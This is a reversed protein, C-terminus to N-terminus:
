EFQELPIAKRLRSLLRDIQESRDRLAQDFLRICNGGEVKAM